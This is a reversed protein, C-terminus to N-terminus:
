SGGIWSSLTAELNAVSQQIDDITSHATDTASMDSKYRVPPVDEDTALLYTANSGDRTFKCVPQESDECQRVRIWRQEDASAAAADYQVAPDSANIPLKYTADEDTLAREPVPEWEASDSTLSPISFGTANEVLQTVDARGDAIVGRTVSVPYITTTPGDLKVTVATYQRSEVPRRSAAPGDELPALGDKVRPRFYERPIYVRVTRSIEENYDIRLFVRGSSAYHWESRNLDGVKDAATLEMDLGDVDGSAVGEANYKAITTNHDLGHATDIATVDSSQGAVTAPAVAAVLLVVTLTTARWRM